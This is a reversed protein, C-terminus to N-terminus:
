VCVDVAEFAREASEFISSRMTPEDLASEVMRTTETLPSRLSREELEEEM